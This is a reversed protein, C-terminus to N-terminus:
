FLTVSMRVAGVFQFNLAPDQDTAYTTPLSIVAADITTVAEVIVTVNVVSL